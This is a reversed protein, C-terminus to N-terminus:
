EAFIPALNVVTVKGVIDEPKFFEAIGSVITCM